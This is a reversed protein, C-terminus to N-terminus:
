ESEGARAPAEHTERSRGPHPHEIAGAEARDRRFRPGIPMPRAPAAVPALAPLGVFRKVLRATRPRRLSACRLRCALDARAMEWALSVRSRWGGSVRALPKEAEEAWASDPEYGHEELWSAVLRALIAKQRPTALERWGGVRGERMHNWHLLTEGDYWQANAPDTLDFGESWLRHALANVRRRNAEFSYKQAVMCADALSIELGVHTGLQQVAQAPESVIDEYRQSLRHPQSSWFRDNALIQHIMGQRVFTEFSVSRKHLMSFVVDRLDRYAYVVIADGRELATAFRPHEEHSKLVQWGATTAWRAQEAAFREGTVYGLRYVSRRQELLHCVVDYQWTSCARYMGACLVYM